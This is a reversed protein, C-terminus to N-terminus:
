LIQLSRLRLRDLHFLRDLSAALGFAPLSGRRKREGKPSPWIVLFRLPAPLGHAFRIVNQGDVDDAVDYAGPAIDALFPKLRSQRLLRPRDHHAPPGILEVRRNGLATEVAGFIHRLFEAIAAPHLRRVVIERPEAGLEAHGEGEVLDLARGVGEVGM